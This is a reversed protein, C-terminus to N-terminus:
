VMHSSQYALQQVSAILRFSRWQPIPHQRAFERGFLLGGIARVRFGSIGAVGKELTLNTNPNFNIPM